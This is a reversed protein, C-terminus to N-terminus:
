SPTLYLRLDAPEPELPCASSDKSGQSSDEHDPVGLFGLLWLVSNAGEFTFDPQEGDFNAVEGECEGGLDAEDEGLVKEDGDLVEESDLDVEEGGVDLETEDDGNFDAEDGLLGTWVVGLDEGLLDEEEGAVAPFDAAKDGLILGLLDPSPVGVLRKAPVSFWLDGHLKGDSWSVVGGFLRGPRGFFSPGCSSCFTLLGIPRGRLCFFKSETFSPFLTFPFHSIGESVTSVM